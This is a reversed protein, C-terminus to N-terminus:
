DQGKSLWVGSLEFQSIVERTIEGDLLNRQISLESLAPNLTRLYKQQVESVEGQHDLAYSEAEELFASLDVVAKEDNDSFVIPVATFDVTYGKEYDYSGLADEDVSFSRMTDYGSLPIRPALDSAYLNFWVYDETRGPEWENEGGQDKNGAWERNSSWRAVSPINVVPLITVFGIEAALILVLLQLKDRKFWLFIIVALEFLLMM